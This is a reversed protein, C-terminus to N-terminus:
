NLTLYVSMSICFCYYILFNKYKFFLLLGIKQYYNSLILLRFVIYKFQGNLVQQTSNVNISKMKYVYIKMKLIKLRLSEWLPKNSVSHKLAKFLNLKKLSKPDILMFATRLVNIFNVGPKTLRFRLCVRYM